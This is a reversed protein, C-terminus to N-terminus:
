STFQFDDLQHGLPEGILLDGFTEGDALARDVIVDAVYEGFGTGLVSDRKEIPGHIVAFDAAVTKIAAHQRVVPAVSRLSLLQQGLCQSCRVNLWPFVSCDPMPRVLKSTAVWSVFSATGTTYALCREEERM